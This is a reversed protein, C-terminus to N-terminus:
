LSHYFFNWGTGFLSYWWMGIFSEAKWSTIAVGPYPTFYEVGDAIVHDQLNEGVPLDAVVPIQSSYILTKLIVLSLFKLIVYFLNVDCSM